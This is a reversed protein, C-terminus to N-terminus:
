TAHWYNFTSDYNKPDKWRVLEIFGSFCSRNKMKVTSSSDLTKCCISRIIYNM